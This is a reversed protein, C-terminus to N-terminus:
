EEGETEEDDEEEGEYGETDVGQGKLAKAMASKLDDDSEEEGDKLSISRVELEISANPEGDDPTNVSINKRRFEILAYGDRPLSDLGSVGSIYLTPYYPKKKGKKGEPVAPQLMGDDPMKGLDIQVPFEDNM